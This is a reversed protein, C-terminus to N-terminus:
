HGKSLIVLVGIGVLTVLATMIMLWNKVSKFNSNVDDTLSTIQYGIDNKSKQNESKIGSLEKNIEDASSKSAAKFKSLADTLEKAQKELLGGFSSKMEGIEQFAEMRFSGIVKSSNANNEKALKEFRGAQKSVTLELSELSSQFADQLKSLRESKQAYDQVVKEKFSGFAVVMAQIEDITRRANEANEETLTNVSKLRELQEILIEFEEQLKKIEEM